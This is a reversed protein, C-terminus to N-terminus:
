SQAPAPDAEGRASTDRVPKFFRDAKERSGFQQLLAGFSRTYATLWRDKALNLDGRRLSEERVAKEVDAIAGALRGAAAVLETGVAKMEAPLESEALAAALANIKKVEEAHPARNIGEVGQPLLRRYQANQRDGGFHELLRRAVSSVTADAGHDAVDRLALMRMVQFEAAEVAEMASKVDRNAQDLPTALPATEPLSELLVQHYLGFSLFKRPSSSFSPKIM